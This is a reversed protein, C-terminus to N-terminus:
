RYRWHGCDRCKDIDWGDLELDASGCQECCVTANGEWPCGHEHLLPPRGDLRYSGCGPCQNPQLHKARERAGAKIDALIQAAREIEDDSM